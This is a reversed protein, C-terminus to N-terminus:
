SSTYSFAETLQLNICHFYFLLRNTVAKRTSYLSFKQPHAILSFLYKALSPLFSCTNAQVVPQEKRLNKKRTVQEVLLSMVVNKISSQTTIHATKLQLNFLGLLQFEFNLEQLKFLMLKKNSCSRAFPIIGGMTGDNKRVSCLLYNYAIFQSSKM